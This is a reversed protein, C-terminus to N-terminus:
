WARSSWRGAASVCFSVEVPSALYPVEVDEVDVDEEVAARSTPSSVEVQRRQHLMKVVPRWLDMVDSGFSLFRFCSSVCCDVFSRVCSCLWLDEIEVDVLSSDAAWDWDARRSGSVDAGVLM